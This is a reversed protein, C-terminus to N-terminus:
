EQSNIFNYYNYYEEVKNKINLYKEAYKRANKGLKQRINQNLILYKVAQYLEKENKREFLIGNAKEINYLNIDTKILDSHSDYRFGKIQEPIGGVNSAIIPLGCSLAESITLGWTEINSSHIYIDSACYCDILQESQYFPNLYKVKFDFSGVQNERSDGVVLVKINQKIQKTLRNLARRLTDIDKYSNSFFDIANTMIIIENNDLKLKNRADLRKKPSFYDTDIAYKILKIDNSSRELRIYLKNLVWNSHALFYLKNNNIIKMKFIINERTKDIKISPPLDLDPCNGCLSEYHNCDLPVSCHGTFFWLDHMSVIIKYKKSWKNILRIDFYDGHMNHFHIIDPEFDIKKIINKSAPFFFIERGFSKLFKYFEFYLKRFLKGLRYSFPFEWEGSICNEYLKRVKSKFEIVSHDQSLKRDVIMTSKHGANLLAKHLNYGAISAGGYLDSSSILLIKLKTKM